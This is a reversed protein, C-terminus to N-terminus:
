TRASDGMWASVRNGVVSGLCSPDGMILGLRRWCPIALNAAHRRLGARGVRECDLSVPDLRHARLLLHMQSLCEPLLGPPDGGGPDPRAVWVPGFVQDPGPDSLQHTVGAGLKTENNM